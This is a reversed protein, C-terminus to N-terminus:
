LSSSGNKNIPYTFIKSGYKKKNSILKLAETFPEHREIAMIFLLM